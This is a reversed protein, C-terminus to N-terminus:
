SRNSGTGEEPLQNRRAYNTRIEEARARLRAAEAERETAAFLVTYYELLSAVERTM